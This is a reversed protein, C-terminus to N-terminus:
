VFKSVKLNPKIVKFKARSRTSTPLNHLMEKVQQQFTSGYDVAQKNDTEIKKNTAASIQEKNQHLGFQKSENIIYSQSHGNYKQM